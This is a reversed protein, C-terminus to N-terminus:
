ADVGLPDNLAAEMAKLPAVAVEKNPGADDEVPETSAAEIAEALSTETVDGKPDVDEDVPEGLAANAAAEKPFVVVVM